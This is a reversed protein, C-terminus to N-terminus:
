GEEDRWSKLVMDIVVAMGNSMWVGWIPREHTRGVWRAYAALDEVSGEYGLRRLEEVLGERTAAERPRAQVMALLVPVM